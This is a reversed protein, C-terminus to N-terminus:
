FAQDIINSPHVVQMTIEWKDSRSDPSMSLFMSKIMCMICKVLSVKFFWSISGWISSNHAHKCSLPL